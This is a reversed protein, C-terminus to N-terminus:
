LRAEHEDVAAVADLGAAVALGHDAAVTQDRRNRRSRDDGFHGAVAQHSTEAGGMWTVTELAMHTVAHGLMKGSQAPETRRNMMAARERRNGASPVCQFGAGVIKDAAHQRQLQRASPPGSNPIAITRPQM